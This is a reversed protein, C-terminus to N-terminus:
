SATVESLREQNFPSLCSEKLLSLPQFDRRLGTISVIYLLTKKGNKQKAETQLASQKKKKEKVKMKRQFTSAKVFPPM